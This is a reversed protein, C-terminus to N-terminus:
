APATAAAERQRRRRQGGRVTKHMEEDLDDPFACRKGALDFIPWGAKQLGKVLRRKRADRFIYRAIAPDGRLIREFNEARKAM